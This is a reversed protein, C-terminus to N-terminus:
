LLSLCWNRVNLQSETDTIIALLICIMGFSGIIKFGNHGLSKKTFWSTNGMAFFLGFLSMYCLLMWEESSRSVLGLCITLSLPILWNFFTLFNRNEQKLHLYIYYPILAPFLIWYWNFGDYKYNNFYGTEVGLYTVGLLCFIAVISSRLIYIMPLALLMWTLIFDGLEGEINYIQSVMSICAAIAFFLVAASGERWATSHSKKWLSFGAAIQSIILPLFAFFTKMPRSLNDWNHAVILVVGMGVLLGGIVGFIALLRSQSNSEKGKYYETIKEATEGSIVNAELLDQIDKKIRM